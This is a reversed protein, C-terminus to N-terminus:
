AMSAMKRHEEEARSLFGRDAEIKVLMDCVNRADYALAITM